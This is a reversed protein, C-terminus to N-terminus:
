KQVARVLALGVKGLKVNANQEVRATLAELTKLPEGVLSSAAM